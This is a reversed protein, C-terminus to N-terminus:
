SKENSTMRFDEIQPNAEGTIKVKLPSKTNYIPPLFQPRGEVMYVPIPTQHLRKETKPEEEGLLDDGNTDFSASGVGDIIFARLVVLHTGVAVGGKNSVRFRGDVIDAGVTSGGSAGIPVFRIDGNLVKNGNYTAEGEVIVKQWPGGKGCGVLAVSVGCLAALALAQPCFNRRWVVSFHMKDTPIM